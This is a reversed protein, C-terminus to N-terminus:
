IFLEYSQPLSQHLSLLFSLMSLMVALTKKHYMQITQEDCHDVFVGSNEKCVGGFSSVDDGVSNGVIMCEFDNNQCQFILMIM